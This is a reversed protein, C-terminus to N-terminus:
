DNLKGYVAIYIPKLAYDSAAVEGFLRLIKDEHQKEVAMYERFISDFRALSSESFTRCAGEFSDVLTTFHKIAQETQNSAISEGLQQISKKIFPGGIDRIVTDVIINDAHDAGLGVVKEAAWGLAKFLGKILGPNCANRLAPLHKLLSQHVVIMDDVHHSLDRLANKAKGELELEIDRTNRYILEDCQYQFVPHRKRLEMLASNPLFEIVMEINKDLKQLMQSASRFNMKKLAAELKELGETPSSKLDIHGISNLFDACRVAVENSYWMEKMTHYKSNHAKYRQHRLGNLYRRQQIHHIPRRLWKPITVPM